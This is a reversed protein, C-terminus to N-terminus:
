KNTKESDVAEDEPLTVERSILNISAGKGYKHTILKDYEKYEYEANEIATIISKEKLILDALEAKRKQIATIHSIIQKAEEETIKTREIKM